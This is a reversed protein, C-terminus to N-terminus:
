CQEAATAVRSEAVRQTSRLPVESLQACRCPQLWPAGLFLEPNLGLQMLVDDCDHLYM